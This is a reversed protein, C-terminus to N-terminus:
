VRAHDIFHPHPIDRDLAPVHPSIRSRLRVTRNPPAPTRMGMQLFWPRNLRNSRIATEAVLVSEALRPGRLYKIKTSTREGEFHRVCYM